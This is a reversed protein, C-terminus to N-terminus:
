SQEASTDEVLPCWSPRETQFDGTVTFVQLGCGIAVCFTAGGIGYGDYELPCAGCDEPMNLEFKAKM